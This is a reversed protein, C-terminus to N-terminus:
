HFQMISSGLMEKDLISSPIEGLRFQKRSPLRISKKQRYRNPMGEPMMWKHFTFWRIESGRRQISCNANPTTTIRSFAAPNKAQSPLYFLSTPRTGHTDLGSRRGGRSKGVSYGADVIKAILNNYLVAYNEPSISCDFPMVVRFRPTEKTHNYTNFVV